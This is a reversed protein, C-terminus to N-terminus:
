VLDPRSTTPLASSMESSRDLLNEDFPKKKDKVCYSWGYVCLLVIVVVAGLLGFSLGVIESIDLADDDSSNGTFNGEYTPTNTPMYSPTSSPHVATYTPTSSPMSTPMCSPASTPYVVTPITQSTGIYISGETQGAYVISSHPFVLAFNSHCRQRVLNM